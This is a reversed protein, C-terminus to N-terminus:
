HAAGICAVIRDQVPQIALLVAKAQEREGGRLLELARGYAEYLPQVALNGAAGKIQHVREAVDPDSGDGFDREPVFSELLERLQLLLQRYLGANGMVRQLGEEVNVGQERLGDLVDMTM